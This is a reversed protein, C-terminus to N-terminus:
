KSQWIYRLFIRKQMNFSYSAGPILKTVLNLKQSNKEDKIFVPKLRTKITDITQIFLMRSTDPLNAPNTGVFSPIMGPKNVQGINTTNRLPSRKANAARANAQKTIFRMKVTDTKYILTNTSDTFPYKILAELLERQYVEPDTIWIKFTDRQINQELFWTSDAAGIISINFDATDAPRALTFLLSGAAKRDSATLYQKKQEGTFTYMRIRGFTYIDPKVAVQSATTESSKGKPQQRLVTDLKTAFFEPSTIEIVSDTFAFKEDGGDYKKNGNLDNLAYLRYKGPKINRIVFGGSFDPRSIYAPLTKSPATDSLNSYMMVLMDSSAELDEANFVNGSLSLSDIVNGTSFFYQYNNITNGENNDRIADQFYFTYTTSDALDEDWKVELAKGKVTIDPKTKLPPSVMFKETIKDLVIYEDFTITFSKSKFMKTGNEPVSQLIVPPEKDKPGGTPASIRACSPYALAALLLVGGLPFITTLSRM